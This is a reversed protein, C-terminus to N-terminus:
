TSSDPIRLRCRYINPAVELQYLLRFQNNPLPCFSTDTLQSKPVLTVTHDDTDSIDNPFDAPHYHVTVINKVTTPKLPDALNHTYNVDFTCSAGSLLNTVLPLLMTM